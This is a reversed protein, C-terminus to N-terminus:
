RTVSAIVAKLIAQGAATQDSPYPRATDMMREPHSSFLKDHQQSVDREFAPELHGLAQSLFDFRM